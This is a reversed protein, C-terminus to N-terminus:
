TLRPHNSAREIKQTTPIPLGELLNPRLVKGKNQDRDHQTAVLSVQYALFEISYVEFTPRRLLSKSIVPWEYGENQDIRWPPDIPVLKPFTRCFFKWAGLQQLLIKQINQVYVFTSKKASKGPSLFIKKWAKGFSNGTSRCYPISSFSPYSHSTIDFFRTLLGKKLKLHRQEWTQPLTRAM